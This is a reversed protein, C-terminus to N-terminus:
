LENKKRRILIYTVVGGVLAVAAVGIGIILMVNVKNEEPEKVNEGELYKKMERDYQEKTIKSEIFENCYKFNPNVKCFEEDYYLNRYPIKVQKVTITRTSCQDPTYAKLTVAVNDGEKFGSLKSNGTGDNKFEKYNMSYFDEIILAKIENNLGTAHITFDLVGEKDEYTYNFEIKSAIEKLNNMKETTCTDLTIANTNLAIMMLLLLLYIKKM